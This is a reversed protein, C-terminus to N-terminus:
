FGSCKLIERFTTIDTVGKLENHGQGVELHKAVVLPWKANQIILIKQAHLCYKVMDVLGQFAVCDCNPGIAGDESHYIIILISILM